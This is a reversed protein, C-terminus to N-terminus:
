TDLSATQLVPRSGVLRSGIMEGELVRSVVIGGFPQRGVRAFGGRRLRERQNKRARNRLVEHDKRRGPM